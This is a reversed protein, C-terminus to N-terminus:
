LGAERNGPLSNIRGMVGPLGITLLSHVLVPLTEQHLSLAAETLHNLEILGQRDPIAEYIMPQESSGPACWEPPSISYHSACCIPRVQYISCKNEALFPCALNLEAYETLLEQPTSKVMLSHTTCEELKALIRGGQEAKELDLLWGEYNQLFRSMIEPNQYLYDVIVLAQATSISIYQSCCYSCGEGCTVPREISDLYLLMEQRAENCIRDQVRRYQRCLDRLRAGYDGEQAQKQIREIRSAMDVHCTYLLVVEGRM